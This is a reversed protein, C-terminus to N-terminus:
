DNVQWYRIRQKKSNRKWKLYELDSLCIVFGELSRMKGCKGSMECTLMSEQGIQHVYAKWLENFPPCLNHQGQWRLAGMKQKIVYATISADPQLGSDKLKTILEEAVSSLQEILSQWGPGCEFGSRLNCYDEALPKKIEVVNAGSKPSRYIGPYTEILNKQWEPLESYRHDKRLMLKRHLKTAPLM